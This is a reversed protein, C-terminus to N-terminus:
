SGVTSQQSGISLMDRISFWGQRGILWKAAALAGRAFVARDRVTHTFAITESPGDFGVTHTGPVSGVRTSSVDIPRAYGSREMGSKLALATGSPADKKMTHHLEHIWAGFEPHRAFNRSAEEVALQFINMGLSFNAAALVGIGAKAATDRMAAEQSQWGTTGIVVNIRRAALQPLNKPVAEALTFDIAVDVDAFDGTAIANPGSHEDIVGAVTAGYAPALSEVLTGMRGHGLLLIRM